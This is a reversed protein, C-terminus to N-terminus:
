SLKRKLSGVELRETEEPSFGLPKSHFSRMFLFSPLESGRTLQPRPKSGQTVNTVQLESSNSFVNFCQADLSSM